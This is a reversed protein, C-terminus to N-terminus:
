KKYLKSFYDNRCKVCGAGRLHSKPTQKFVGHIDCIIDIKEKQGKYDVKDYLYRNNHKLKAKEIFENTNSSPKKKSALYCGRCGQGRKLKEPSIYFTGHDKCIVEGKTKSDILVFNSYDYEKNTIYYDLDKIKNHAEHGGKNYFGKDPIYYNRNLPDKIFLSILESEHKMVDERTSFTRIIVKDLLTKDVKWTKMSGMYTDLNPEIKSGRSGIYFEGTPRNILMYTYFIKGSVEV